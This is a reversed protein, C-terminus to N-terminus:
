VPRDYRGIDMSFLSLAKNLAEYRWETVDILVSDM